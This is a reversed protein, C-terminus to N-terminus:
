APVVRFDARPMAFVVAMEDCAAEAEAETDWLNLADDGLYETSWSHEASRTEIVYSM